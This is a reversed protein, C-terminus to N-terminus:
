FHLAYGRRLWVCVGPPVRLRLGLHPIGIRWSHLTAHCFRPSVLFDMLVPNCCSCWSHCGCRVVSANASIRIHKTTYAIPRTTGTLTGFADHTSKAENAHNADTLQGPIVVEFPWEILCLSRLFPAVELPSYPGNSCLSHENGVLAQRQLFNGTCGLPCSLPKRGGAVPCCFAM